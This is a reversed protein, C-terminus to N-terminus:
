YGCFGYGGAAGLFICRLGPACQANSSCGSGGMAPPQPPPPTYPGAKSWYSPTAEPAEVSVEVPDSATGEDSEEGEAAACGAGIAMIAFISMFKAVVSAGNTM